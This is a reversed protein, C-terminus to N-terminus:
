EVRLAWPVTWACAALTRDPERGAGPDSRRSHTGGKGTRDATAEPAVRDAHRTNRGRAAVGTYLDERGQGAYRLSLQRVRPAHWHVHFGAAHKPHADFAGSIKNTATSTSTLTSAPSRKILATPVCAPLRATSAPRSRVMTRACASARAM